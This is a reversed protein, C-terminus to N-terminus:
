STRTLLAMPADVVEVRFHGSATLADITDQWQQGTKFLGPENLVVLQRTGTQRLVALATDTVVGQNLARLATIRQDLWPAPTQNYANLSHRRSLAAVYTTASNLPRAKGALPLGLIPGAADGEAALRRIVQNDVEGSVVRSSGVRYDYLVSLTGVALLAALAPRALRSLLRWGRREPQGAARRGLPGLALGALRGAGVVALVVIVLMTVVMLRQPVRQYSLFSIQEFLFRYPQFSGFTLHPGFTFFIVPPLLVAYLVARAPRGKWAAVAVGVVALLSVLWGAYVIGEGGRSVTKTVLATPGIAYKTVENWSGNGGDVNGNFVYDFAALCYAAV